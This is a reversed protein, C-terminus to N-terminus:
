ALWGTGSTGRVVLDAHPLGRVEACDDTYLDAAVRALNLCTMDEGVM